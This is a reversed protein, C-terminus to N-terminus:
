GDLLDELTALAVVLIAVGLRYLPEQQTYNNRLVDLTNKPIFYEIEKTAAVISDMVYFTDRLITELDATATYDSVKIIEWFGLTLDKFDTKYLIDYAREAAKTETDGCVKLLRKRIIEVNPKNTPTKFRDVLIQKTLM